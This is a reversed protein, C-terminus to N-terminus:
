EAQATEEKEKDAVIQKILNEGWGNLGEGVAGVLLTLYKKGLDQQYFNSYKTIDAESFDRYIYYSTLIMQQEFAPRMMTEMQVLQADLTASFEANDPKSAKLAAFMNKAMGVVIILTQEVIESSEVYNIIAQTREPTPPTAQLQGIFTMLNQQFQPEASQLEAAVVRTALDSELWTLINQMEEPSVNAKIYNFMQELMADTNMSSTLIKSFKQHEATDKSTLAMQQSMGQMQLPLSEIMRTTGSKDMLQYIQADSVQANAFSSTVILSTLMFASALFTTIKKM